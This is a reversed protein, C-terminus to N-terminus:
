WNNRMPNVMISFIRDNKECYAGFKEINSMVREFNSNVRISEYTEKSFGDLSLNVRFKGGELVKQVKPTWVTGNTAVTIEVDDNIKSIKDWLKYCLDQLFPEGGNVRAEKLHPIFEELQEVFADDYPSQRPPLGDRNKRVTSSLHGSCMVCELNCFNSLEFEMISPYNTLPRDIDYARALPNMFLRNQINRECVKCAQSLDKERVSKRINEFYQGFWLDRVSHEPYRPPDFFTLWCPAAQGLVNFYMNSFPAHCLQEPNKIARSKNYDAVLAPDLTTM